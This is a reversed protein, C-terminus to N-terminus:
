KQYVPVAPVFATPNPQQLARTALVTLMLNQFSEEFQDRRVPRIPLKILGLVVPDNSNRIIKELEDPPVGIDRFITDKTLLVEAYNNYIENYQRANVPGPLGNCAAVANFYIQQDLVIRQDLNSDFLDKVRYADKENPILLRISEFNKLKTNLTRIEDAIPKIGEGHCTICSRGSRVVRDVNSNDIAINLDAEDLRNGAGDTLFYAQLGNPLTGIDETADFKEDLFNQMYRRDDVSKKSDHTSWYYGNTFTPSRIMTRNNRAVISQIVVAKDQSRAKKALEENTFVLNEFDKLKKGLGLFDYYAPPLTANVIFWDARVIPAESQAMTSLLTINATTLWPAHSFIRKTDTTAPVDEERKEVVQRTVYEPQGNSYFRGTQVQKTVTVEKIVKKKQVKIIDKQLYAHFYPEPFARVGSGEKALKEFVGKKWEYDNINIRILTEDSGGVFFPIYMSRRTSLSNVVFSVTQGYAKRQEKPINYLSLYRIYPRISPDISQIDALAFAVSTDPTYLKQPEAPVAPLAPAPQPPVIPQPQQTAPQPPPAPPGQVVLTEPQKEPTKPKEEPIKDATKEVPPLVPEAKKEVKREAIKVAPTEPKDKNTRIPLSLGTVGVALLVGVIITLKKM